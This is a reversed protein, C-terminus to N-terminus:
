PEWKVRWPVPLLDRNEWPAGVHGERMSLVEGDRPDGSPEYLFAPVDQRVLTAFRERAQDCDAFPERHLEETTEGMVERLEFWVVVARRALREEEARIRARRARAEREDATEWFRIM